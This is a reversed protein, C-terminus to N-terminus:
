LIKWNTLSYIVNFVLFALHSPFHSSIFLPFHLCSNGKKANSYNFIHQIFYLNKTKIQYLSRLKLICLILKKNNEKQIFYPYRFENKYVKFLYLFSMKWKGLISCKIRVLHSFYYFWRPFTNLPVLLPFLHVSVFLFPKFIHSGM